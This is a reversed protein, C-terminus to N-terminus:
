GAQGQDDNTEESSYRRGTLAMFVSELSPRKVDVSVVREADAGLQGIISGMVAGPQETALRLVSGDIQHEHGALRPADGDFTM